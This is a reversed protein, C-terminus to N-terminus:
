FFIITLPTDFDLIKNPVNILKINGNLIIDKSHGKNEKVFGKNM